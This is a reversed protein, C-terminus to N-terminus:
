DEVDDAFYVSLELTIGLRGMASLLEPPFRGYASVRDSTLAFPFDLTMTEVGEIESIASLEGAYLEVFASAERIQTELDSIDASSAVFNAGWGRRFLSVPKLATAGLLCDVTAGDTVSIRLLVAM